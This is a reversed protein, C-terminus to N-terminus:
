SGALLSVYGQRYGPFRLEYGSGLMRRNSVRKNAGADPRADVYRVAVGLRQALWSEVEHAPAPNSDVVCYCEALVADAEAQLLLHEMFGVADDRHVRNTYRLPLPPAVEGRRIRRLLSTRGPGYIGGLRLAVAGRWGSFQREAELLARGNFRRPETASDEDVWSGDDQHYVATSSTFLLSRPPAAALQELLRSLGTLFVTRYGAESREAPTLTVVVHDFHRGRLADLGRPSTVDAAVGELWGPLREPRRRAGLLQWGHRRMAAALGLGLDGCGLLLLSSM